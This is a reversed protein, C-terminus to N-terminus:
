KRIKVTQKRKISIAIWVLGAVFSVISFWHGHSLGLWDKPTDRFFEIIFRVLGYSIMFRPYLLGRRKDSRSEIILLWVLIGFDLFAEMIQTPWKFSNNGLTCVVGGCCGELFCGIRITGLM